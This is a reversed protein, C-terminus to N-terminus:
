ALRKTLYYNIAVKREGEESGAHYTVRLALGATVRANLPWTNIEMMSTWGEPAVPVFEKIIYKAVMPWAECTAARYPEPILANSDQIEASIWDGIKAGQVILRGGSVYREEPLVYDIIESAGPAVTMVGRGERKTRYTPQAFPSPDPQKTVEVKQVEGNLSEIITTSAEDVPHGDPCVTPPAEGWSEVYAGHAPCYARYKNLIAM